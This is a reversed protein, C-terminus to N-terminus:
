AGAMLHLYYFAEDSLPTDWIAAHALWGNWINAPTTNYAGITCYANALADATQTGLGTQTAGTQAGNYYAKMTDGSDSWSIALQMWALTSLGSLTVSKSVTGLVHTFAIANANRVFHAGDRSVATLISFMRMQAATWAGADYVKAWIMISGESLFAKATNLWASYVNGHDNAGDFYPCVFPDQAQALDVGTYTGNHAAVLDIATSGSLDNLPWYAIPNTSLIFSPYSSGFKDLAPRSLLPVLKSNKM